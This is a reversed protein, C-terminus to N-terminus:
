RINSWYTFRISLELYKCVKIM